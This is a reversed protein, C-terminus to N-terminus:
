LCSHTRRLIQARSPSEISMSPVVSREGMRNESFCDQICLIGNPLHRVLAELPVAIVCISINNFEIDKAIVVKFRNGMDLNAVQVNKNHCIKVFHSRVTEFRGHTMTKNPSIGSPMKSQAQFCISLIFISVPERLHPVRM